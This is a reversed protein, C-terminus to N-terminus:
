CLLNSTAVIMAVCHSTEAPAVPAADHSALDWVFVLFCGFLRRRVGSQNGHWDFPILLAERLEALKLRNGSRNAPGAEIRIALQAWPMLFAQSRKHRVQRLVCPGRELLVLGLVFGVLRAGFPAKKRGLPVVKAM